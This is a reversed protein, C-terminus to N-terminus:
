YEFIFTFSCYGIIINDFIYTIQSNILYFSIKLSFLIILLSTKNYILKSKENYYFTFIIIDFLQLFLITFCLVIKVINSDSKNIIIDYISITISILNIIISILLFIIINGRNYYKNFYTDELKNDKFNM